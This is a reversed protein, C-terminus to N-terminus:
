ILECPTQGGGGIGRYITPYGVVVSGEGEAQVREGGQFGFSNGKITGGGPIGVFEPGHLGPTPLQLPEMFSRAERDMQQGVFVMHCSVFISEGPGFSEVVGGEDATM